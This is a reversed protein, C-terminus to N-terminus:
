IFEKISTLCWAWSIGSIQLMQVDVSSFLYTQMVMFRDIDEGGGLLIHLNVLVKENRQAEQRQDLIQVDDKRTKQCQYRGQIAFIIM